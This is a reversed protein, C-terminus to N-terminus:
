QVSKKGGDGYYAWEFANNGEAIQFGLQNGVEIIRDHESISLSSVERGNDQEEMDM